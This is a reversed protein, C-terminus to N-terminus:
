RISRAWMPGFIFRILVGAVVLLVTLILGLLAGKEGNEYNEWAVRIAYIGVILTIFGVFSGILLTGVGLGISKWFPIWGQDNYTAPNMSMGPPMYTPQGQYGAMPAVAQPAPIPAAPFLGSVEPMTSAQLVMGNTANRVKTNPQVRNDAVWEKLTTLDVPGYENGDIGTVFYQM